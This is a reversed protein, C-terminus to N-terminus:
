AYAELNKQRISKNITFSDVLTIGENTNISFYKSNLSIGDEEKSIGIQLFGHGTDYYSMLKVDDLQPIDATFREDDMTAV